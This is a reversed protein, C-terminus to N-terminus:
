RCVQDNALRAIGRGKPRILFCRCSLGALIEAPLKNRPCRARGRARFKRGIGLLLDKGEPSNAVRIIAEVEDAHTDLSWMRSRAKMARRLGGKVEKSANSFGEQPTIIEVPLAHRFDGGARSDSSLDFRYAGTIRCLVFRADAPVNPVLVIDGTGMSDSRIQEPAEDLLMRWQHWAKKQEDSAESKLWSRAVSRLNQYLDIGRNEVYGGVQIGPVPNIVQKLRDRRQL